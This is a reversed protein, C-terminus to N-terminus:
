RSGGDDPEGVNDGAAGPGPQRFTWFSDRFCVSCENDPGRGRILRPLGCGSVLDIPSVM